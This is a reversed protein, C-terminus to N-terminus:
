YNYADNVTLKTENQQAIAEYAPDITDYVPEAKDPNFVESIHRENRNKIIYIAMCLISCSLLVM